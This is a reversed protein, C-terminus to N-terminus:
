WRVAGREDFANGPDLRGALPHGRDANWASLADLVASVDRVRLRM